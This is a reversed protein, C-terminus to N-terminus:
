GTLGSGNYSKVIVLAFKSLIFYQRYNVTIKLLLDFGM